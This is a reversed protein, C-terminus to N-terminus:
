GANKQIGSWVQVLDHCRASRCSWRLHDIIWSIGDLEVPEHGPKCLSVADFCIFYLPYDFPQSKDGTYCYWTTCHKQGGRSNCSLTCSSMSDQPSLTRKMSSTGIQKCINHAGSQHALFPLVCETNKSEIWALMNSFHMRQHGQSSLQENLSWLSGWVLALNVTLVVETILCWIMMCCWVMYACTHWWECWEYGMWWKHNVYICWWVDHMMLWVDYMMMCWRVDDGMM